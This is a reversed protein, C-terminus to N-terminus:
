DEQTPELNEEEETPSEDYAESSEDAEPQEEEIQEYSEINNEDFDGSEGSIADILELYNMTKSSEIEDIMAQRKEAADKAALVFPSGKDERAFAALILRFTVFLGMSFIFINEYLSRSILESRVIYVILAPVSSYACLLASILGFAPYLRWKGRGLSIRTEYLLFLACSLFATQDVIKNPANMPLTTDFYLYAAYLSVTLVSICGAASRLVSPPSTIFANLIFYSVAVVAIIGVATQLPGVIAANLASKPPQKATILNVGFFLVAAGCIGAPVYTAPTSFSAIYSKTSKTFIPYSLFFIVAAVVLYNAAYFVPKQTFYHSEFSFNLLCAITRLVIAIPTVVALVPLYKQLKNSGSNMKKVNEKM